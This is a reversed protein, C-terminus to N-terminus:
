SRKIPDTTSVRACVTVPMSRPRRWGYRLRKILTLAVISSSGLTNCMMMAALLADNAVVYGYMATAAHSLSWFIWSALSIAHAASRERVIAVMQPVYFLLRLASCSAYITTVIATLELTM